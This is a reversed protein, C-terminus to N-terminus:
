ASGRRWVLERVAAATLDLKSIFGVAPSVDILDQYEHEDYASILILDPSRRERALRRAVEFGSRGGLDVDVLVVDPRLQEVRSVAHDASTVVGVVDLGGSELLVSAIRGFRVNDDVILCRLTATRVGV